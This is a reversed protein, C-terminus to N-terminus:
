KPSPWCGFTILAAYHLDLSFMQSFFLRPPIFYWLLNSAVLLALLLYIGQVLVKRGLSGHLSNHYVTLRLRRALWEAADSLTTQPCAWGCWVRGLVVTVLLFALVFILAFLM